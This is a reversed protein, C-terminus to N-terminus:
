YENVDSLYKSVNYLILNCLQFFFTYVFDDCDDSM